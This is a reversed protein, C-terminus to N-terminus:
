GKKDNWTFTYIPHLSLIPANKPFEKASLSGSFHCFIAEPKLHPRIEKYVDLIADDPTACFLIDCEKALEENQWDIKKLKLFRSLERARNRKIDSVGLVKFGKKLLLAAFFSGVRGAGILGFRKVRIKKIV